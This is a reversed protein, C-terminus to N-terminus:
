PCIILRTIMIIGYQTFFVQWDNITRPYLRFICLRRRCAAFSSSLQKGIRYFLYVGTYLRHTVIFVGINQHHAHVWIHLTIHSIRCRVAVRRSQYYISSWRRQPGNLIIIPLFEESKNLIQRSLLMSGAIILCVLIVCSVAVSIFLM